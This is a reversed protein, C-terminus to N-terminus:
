RYTVIDRDEWRSRECIYRCHEDCVWWMRWTGQESCQFERREDATGAREKKSQEFVEDDNVYKTKGRVYM